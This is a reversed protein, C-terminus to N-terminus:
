LNSNIADETRDIGFNIFAGVFIFTNVSPLVARNRLGDTSFNYGYINKQGLINNIALVLVMFSKADKKGLNPLYNLSFNLASFDKLRGQTDLHYNGGDDTM